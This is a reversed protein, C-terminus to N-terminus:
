EQIVAPADWGPYERKWRPMGLQRRLAHIRRQALEDLQYQNGSREWWKLALEFKGQKEAITAILHWPIRNPTDGHPAALWSYVEQYAEDYKEEEVLRWAHAFRMKLTITAGRATGDDPTVRLVRYYWELAREIDPMLEYAHGLLRGTHEPPAESRLTKTLWKVAEPYMDMRDYYTWGINFAIEASDPNEQFGDMLWDIGMKFWRVQGEWDDMAQAEAFMNYAMHWGTVTWVDIFHPDLMVITQAMPILRQMNGTHFYEDCKLWLMDAAVGRFGGMVAGIIVGTIGQVNLQSIRWYELPEGLSYLFRDRDISQQLYSLPILMVLAAVVVVIRL